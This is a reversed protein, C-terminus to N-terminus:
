ASHDMILVEELKVPSSIATRTKSDYERRPESSSPSSQFESNRLGNLDEELPDTISLRQYLVKVIVNKSLIGTPGIACVPDRRREYPAQTFGDTIDGIEQCDEFWSAGRRYAIPHDYSTEQGLQWVVVVVFVRHSLNGPCNEDM